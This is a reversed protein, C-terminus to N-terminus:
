AGTRQEVGAGDGGDLRARQQDVDRAAANDILSAQQGRKAGAVNATGDDVNELDLRQRGVAREPLEVVDDDRRVHGPKEGGPLPGGGVDETLIEISPECAETRKDVLDIGIDSVSCHRAPELRRITSCSM